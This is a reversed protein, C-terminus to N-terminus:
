AYHEKFHTVIKEGHDRTNEIFLRHTKLGCQIVGAVYIREVNTELSDPDCAPESDGTEKVEIGLKRLFEYDPHYGTMALVFDNAIEFQGDRDNELLVRDEMIGRVQTRFYAQISGEKIRNEINPKIWYKVRENIRDGRVCMSVNAGKQWCELAADCASNAAGVVLLDQGIYPHPNHYYHSVKDLSEGPVDMLNPKDFYGTAVVLGKSTYTSESTKM